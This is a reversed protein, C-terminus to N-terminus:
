GSGHASARQAVFAIVLVGICLLGAIAFAWQIGIQDAASGLIQPTVLIALGGGMSVRASATNAMGPAVSTAASLTFPFLNAVGLGLIFLGTLAVAPSRALWFVPFGAAVIVSASLLLRGTPVRRTLRSGTFRGIVVAGLFATMGAVSDVRSLGVVKELFDAGWFVVCWEVSVSLLVVLWYMWFQRPLRRPAGHSESAQPAETIPMQWRWAFLVAWAAAGLVVAVRWGIGAAESQSVLLPALAAAVSAGVNAETLAVARLLGHHDALTAQIMVLLFSGIFGMVFTCAISVAASGAATLALAALAMGIGGGWFVRRRGLRRAARDAMTGALMMGLAFASLHLGRVTYSMNLQAALFPMLPGLSSQLFAYYALMLYALWTFPDRVFRFPVTTM